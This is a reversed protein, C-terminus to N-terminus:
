KGGAMGKFAPGLFQKRFEPLRGTLTVFQGSRDVQFGARPASDRLQPLLEKEVMTRIIEASDANELMLRIKVEFVDGSQLEGSFLLGLVNKEMAALTEDTLPAVDAATFWGKSVGTKLFKKLRGQTNSFYGRIQGASVAMERMLTKERETPKGRSDSIGGGALYVSADKAASETSGFVFGERQVYVFAEGNGASRVRVAGRETSVLEQPNAAAVRGMIFSLANGFRKLQITTAVEEKGTKEDYFSIVVIEPSIATPVMRAILKAAGPNEANSADIVDNLLKGFEPDAPDPRFLIMGRPNAELFEVDKLVAQPWVVWAVVAAIIAVIAFVTWAFIKLLRKFLSKQPQPMAISEM